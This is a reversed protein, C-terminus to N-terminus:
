ANSHPHSHNTQSSFSPEDSQERLHAWVLFIHFLISLLNKTIFCIITIEGSYGQRMLYCRWCLFYVDQVMIPAILAWVKVDFVVCKLRNIISSSCALDEASQNTQRVVTNPFSNDSSDSSSSSESEETSGSSESSTSTSDSEQESNTSTSSEESSEESEFSVTNDEKSLNSFFLCHLSGIWIYLYVHAIDWWAGHVKEVSDLIDFADAAILFNKM